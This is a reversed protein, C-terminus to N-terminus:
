IRLGNGLHNLRNEFVEANGWTDLSNELYKPWKGFRQTM